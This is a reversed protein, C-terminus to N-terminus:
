AVELLRKIKQSKNVIIELLYAPNALGNETQTIYDTKYKSLCPSDKNTSLISEAEYCFRLAESMAVLDSAGFKTGSVEIAELTQDAGYVGKPINEPHKALIEKTTPTRGFNKM